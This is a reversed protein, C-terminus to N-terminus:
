ALQEILPDIAEGNAPFLTNQTGLVEIQSLLQAKLRAQTESNMM